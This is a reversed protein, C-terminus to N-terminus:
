LIELFDYLTLVITKATVARGVIQNILNNPPTTSLKGAVTDLFYNANVSLSASGIVETWDTLEVQGTTIIIGSEGVNLDGLALGIALTSNSSPNALEVGLSVATVAQGAKIQVVDVNERILNGIAYTNPLAVLELWELSTGVTAAYYMRGEATALDGVDYDLPLEAITDCVFYKVVRRSSSNSPIYSTIVAMM